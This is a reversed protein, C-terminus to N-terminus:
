NGFLVEGTDDFKVTSAYPKGPVSELKLDEEIGHCDCPNEHRYTYVRSKSCYSVLHPRFNPQHVDCVEPMCRLCSIALILLYKM